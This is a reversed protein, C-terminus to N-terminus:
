GLGAGLQLGGLLDPAVNESRYVFTNTNLGAFIRINMKPQQALIFLPAVVIFTLFLLKKM